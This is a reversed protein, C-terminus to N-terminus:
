YLVKGQFRQIREIEVSNENRYPPAKGRILSSLNGSNQRPAKMTRTRLEMIPAKM